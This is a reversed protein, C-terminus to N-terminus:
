NIQFDLASLNLSNRYAIRCNRGKMIRQRIRWRKLVKMALKKQAFAASTDKSGLPLHESQNYICKQTTQM